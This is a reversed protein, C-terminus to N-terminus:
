HCCLSSPSVTWFTGCNARPETQQDAQAAAARPLPVSPPRQPPPLTDGNALLARRPSSPASQSPTGAASALLSDHKPTSPKSLSAADATPIASALQDALFATELRNRYAAYIAFQVTNGTAIDACPRCALMSEALLQECRPLCRITSDVASFYRVQMVKKVAVLVERSSGKLLVTCGLANPCGKFFMLTRAAM